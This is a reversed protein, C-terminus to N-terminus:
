RNEWAEWGVGPLLGQGPIPALRRERNRQKRAAVEELWECYACENFACLCEVCGDEECRPCFLVENQSEDIEVGCRPCNM